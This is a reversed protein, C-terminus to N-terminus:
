DLEKPTAARFRRVAPPNFAVFMGSERLHGFLRGCAYCAIAGKDAASYRVDAHACTPVQEPM